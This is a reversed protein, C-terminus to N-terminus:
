YKMINFFIAKM